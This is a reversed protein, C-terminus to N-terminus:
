FTEKVLTEVRAKTHKAKVNEYVDLADTLITRVTGAQFKDDVKVYYTINGVTDFEKVLEITM